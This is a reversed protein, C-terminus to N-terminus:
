QHVQWCLAAHAFAASGESESRTYILNSACVNAIATGLKEFLVAANRQLPHMGPKYLRKGGWEEVYACERRRQIDDIATAISSGDTGGPNLGMFYYDGRVLTSVTSYLIAGPENIIPALISRAQVELSEVNNMIHGENKTSLM